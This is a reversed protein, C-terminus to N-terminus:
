KAPAAENAAETMGRQREALKKLLEATQAAERAERRRAEIELSSQEEVAMRLSVMQRSMIASSSVVQGLGQIETEISESQAAIENVARIDDEANRTSDRFTRLREGWYDEDDRALQEVMGYYDEPTIPRGQQEMAGTIDVARSLEEYVNRTNSDLSELRDVMEAIYQANELHRAIEPDLMRGAFGAPNRRLQDVMLQYQRASNLATTVQRAYSATLQAQNALQTIETSGGFGAVSGALIPGSLAFAIAAAIIQPALRNM